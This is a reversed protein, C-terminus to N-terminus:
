YAVSLLGMRGVEAETGLSLRYVYTGPPVLQGAADRGDWSQGYEGSTVLVAPLEAVPRGALDFLRVTVARGATVERVKYLFRTRDNVGDGNPTFPNPGVALDVLLDGGVPTRVALVNGGFRFTANGPKVQQRIRDPDDSSYVWGSFETGFRLVPADFVVELQKFSDAQGQLKPFSAVLRDAMVEVPYLNRDVEVGDLAVSRVTDAQAHTLIELRDFGADTAQFTPQVVYTFTAPASSEVDVPWIEGFIQQASPVEGFQLSLRDLRPAAQSTSFFRVAIQLYQSPGPSLLPTGDEWSGVALSSDRMGAQVDYPPSWFSWNETNHATPLRSLADIELYEARTIRELDGNVNRTFYLDPDPTRGTRTRIELRTGQPVQADWRIRGWSIPKGFDLIETYLAAERVYGEGYIEMEALEWNRLPYPQIMLYRISRTPFRLDTVVDLNERTSFLVDLLPDDTGIWRRGPIRGCPGNWLPLSNDAVRIEFWALFNDAFSVEGFSELPPRPAAMSRILLADEERGLRPYFRIRNIPVNARFDFITGERFAQGLPVGPAKDPDQVFGRYQATAPDGDLMKKFFPANMGKFYCMYDADGWPGYTVSVEGGTFPLPVDKEDASLDTLVLNVMPDIFRPQISTGTFDVLTDAGVDHPATAVPVQGTQRGAADLVLYAGASGAAIVQNWPVGDAGGVRYETRAAAQTVVLLGAGVMLLHGRM